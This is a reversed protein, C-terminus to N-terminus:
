KNFPNHKQSVGYLTAAIDHEDLEEIEKYFKFLASVLKEVSPKFKLLAKYEEIVKSNFSEYDFFGKTQYEQYDNMIKEPNDFYYYNLDSLIYEFDKLRELLFAIDGIEKSSEAIKLHLQNRIRRKEIVQGRTLRINIDSVDIEKLIGKLPVYEPVNKSVYVSNNEIMNERGYSLYVKSVGLLRNMKEITRKSVARRNNEIDSLFSKNVGILNALDTQTLKLALRVIRMRDNITSNKYHINEKKLEAM